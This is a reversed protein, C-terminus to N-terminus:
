GFCPLDWRLLSMPRPPLSKGLELRAANLIPTGLCLGPYGGFYWSHVACHIAGAYM